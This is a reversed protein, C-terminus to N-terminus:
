ASDSQHEGQDLAPLPIQFGPRALLPFTQAVAELLGAVINISFWKM